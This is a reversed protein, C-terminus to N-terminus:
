RGSWSVRRINALAASCQSNLRAAGGVFMKAGPLCGVVDVGASM